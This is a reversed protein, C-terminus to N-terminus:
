AGCCSRGGVADVIRGGDVPDPEAHLAPLGPREVTRPATGAGAAAGGWVSGFLAALLVALTKM